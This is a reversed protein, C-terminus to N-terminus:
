EWTKYRKAFETLLRIAVDVATESEGTRGPENPYYDMICDALRKIQHGPSETREKNHYKGSNVRM